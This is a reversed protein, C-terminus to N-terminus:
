RGGAADISGAGSEATSPDGSETVDLRSLGIASLTSVAAVAGLILAMRLFPEGSRLRAAALLMLTRVWEAAGVLLILQLTRVAWNRGTLLLLPALALVLVLLWHGGRLFHAALVLLSAVAGVVRLGNV